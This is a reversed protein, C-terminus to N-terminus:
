CNLSHKTGLTLPNPSFFEKPDFYVAPWFGGGGVQLLALTKFSDM